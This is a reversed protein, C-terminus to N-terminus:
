HNELKNQAPVKRTRALVLHPVAFALRPEKRGKAATARFSPRGLLNWLFLLRRSGRRRKHTRHTFQQPNAAGLAFSAAIWTSSTPVATSASAAV